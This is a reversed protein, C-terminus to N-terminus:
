TKHNGLHIRIREKILDVLPHSDMPNLITLLIRFSGSRREFIFLVVIRFWLWM